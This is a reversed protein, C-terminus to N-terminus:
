FNGKEKPQWPGIMSVNSCSKAESDFRCQLFHMTGDPVFVKQIFIYDTSPDVKV